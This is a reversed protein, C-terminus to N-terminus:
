VADKEVWDTPHNALFLDLDGDKDYDFFNAMITFSTSADIGYDKAQTLLIDTVMM